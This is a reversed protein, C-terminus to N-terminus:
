RIGVPIPFNLPFRVAQTLDYQYFSATFFMTGAAQVTAVDNGALLTFSIGAAGQTRWIPNPFWERISGTSFNLVRRNTLSSLVFSSFGFTAWQENGPLANPLGNFIRFNCNADWDAVRDVAIQFNLNSIVYAFNPPLSGTINLVIDDDVPKAALADNSFFRVMGRPVANQLRQPESMGEFPTYTILPTVNQAVTAM